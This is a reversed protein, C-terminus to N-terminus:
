PVLIQGILRGAAPNTLTHRSYAFGIRRPPLPERTPFRVLSGEEIEKKVFDEIVCAIGLGIKAFDILLDMTSVELQQGFRINHLIMYKDAYQRSVNNKDLTLLTAQSTLEEPLFDETGAAKETLAAAARKQLADLYESSTVFVDSITRIPCFTIGGLGEAEGILGVDLTGAELAAITEHTSQCSISVRVQPYERIYSQLYPILVYKCLTTSAGISLHGSGLAERRLIQEEGTEIARFATDLQRYLMEGAETLTVGRSNRRFLESGLGEELKSISKSVAPQSIYLRKAANSINGCQATIYFVYYQNLFQTM